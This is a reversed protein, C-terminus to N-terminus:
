NNEKFFYFSYGLQTQFYNQNKNENLFHYRGRFFLEGRKSLQASALFEFTHYSESDPSGDFKRTEFKADKQNTVPIIPDVDNPYFKFIKRAYSLSFQYKDSPNIDWKFVIGLDRTLNSFINTSVLTSDTDPLKESVEESFRVINYNHEYAISFVSQFAPLGFRIAEIRFGLSARKYRMVDNYNAVRFTDVLKIALESDDDELKNLTFKPEFRNLFIVYFSNYRSFPFVKTVINVPKSFELQVLGNPDNGNLGIFDTFVKAKLIESTREKFVLKGSETPIVYLTQDKPSYNETRLLLNYNYFFLDRVEIM